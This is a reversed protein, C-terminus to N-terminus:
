FLCCGVDCERKREQEFMSVYDQNDEKWCLVIRENYIDGIVSENCFCPMDEKPFGNKRGPKLVFLDSDEKLLIKLNEKM